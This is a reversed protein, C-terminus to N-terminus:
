KLVYYKKATEAVSTWRQEWLGVAMQFGTVPNFNQDPIYRRSARPM